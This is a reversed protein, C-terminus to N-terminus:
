ASTSSGRGLRETCDQFLTQPCCWVEAGAGEVTFRAMEPSVWQLLNLVTGPGFNSRIAPRAERFAEIKSEPKIIKRNM